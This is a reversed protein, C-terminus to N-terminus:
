RSFFRRLNRQPHLGLRDEVRITLDHTEGATKVEDVMQEFEREGILRYAHSTDNTTFVTVKPRGYRGGSYLVLEEVAGYAFWYFKDAQLLVADIGYREFLAQMAGADKRHKRTGLGFMPTIYSYEALYVGTNTLFLEGIRLPFSGTMGFHIHAEVEIESSPLSDPDVKGIEEDEKQIAM